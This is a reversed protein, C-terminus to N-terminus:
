FETRVKVAGGKRISEWAAACVAVTKAGDRVGPSPSKDENLCEEFHHLYRMVGAGHGLAGEMEAPFVIEAVPRRELKDFVVKIHGAQQDTFDAVLSAKTGFLGMGMMPMPPHVLGYAGLVRAVVGSKFRLNILYNDEYPYEPTLNGKRGYAHVEEVDGLFWRLLDIPHSAGGFMLDQPARVRWPTLPFFSRADHVYHGEAFIIEGLDGDDYMRKAGSFEPDFRMTQGVIFKLGTQDVTRVLTAADEVTTCMPKTCVVHKGARLAALAHETHLHDPTFVGIVHIDDRAILERYDATTYPLSWQAALARLRPEDTSCLGRVELRSDPDRNIFLLNAGMGIGIVGIGIDKKTM